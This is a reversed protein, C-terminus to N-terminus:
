AAKVEDAAKIMVGALTTYAAAWANKVEDTFADGLGQQLTWLLAAAVTDYDEAVVGYDAHRAGLAQVAPVITDLKTLGAVAAGLMQMLKTGQETMDESFLSKYKPELEFLRGYFLEAAKDSIPKVMAWTKQVHEIQEPTM